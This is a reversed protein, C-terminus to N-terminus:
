FSYNAFSQAVVHAVIEVSALFIWSRDLKRETASSIAILLNRNVIEINGSRILKSEHKSNLLRALSHPVHESSVAIGRPLHASRAILLKTPPQLLTINAACVSHKRGLTPANIGIRRPANYVLPIVPVFKTERCTYRRHPLFERGSSDPIKTSGPAHSAIRYKNISTQLVSSEPFLYRLKRAYRTSASRRYIGSGTPFRHLSRHSLMPSRLAACCVLENNRRARYGAEIARLVWLVVETALERLTARAERIARHNIASMNIINTASRGFSYLTETRSRSSERARSGIASRRQSDSVLATVGHM